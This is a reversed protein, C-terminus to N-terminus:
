PHRGLGARFKGRWLIAMTKDLAFRGLPDTNISVTIGSENAM